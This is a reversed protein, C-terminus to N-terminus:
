IGRRIREKEWAREVAKNVQRSVRRRDFFMIGDLHDTEHQAVRANMDVLDLEKEEGMPTFYRMLARKSRGVYEFVGPLSLCGEEGQIIPGSLELIPNCVAIPPLTLEGKGNVSEPFQMVFVRIPVGVQPAALGVGQYNNMADILTDAFKQLALGYGRIEFCRLSLVPNNWYVIRPSGEETPILDDPIETM